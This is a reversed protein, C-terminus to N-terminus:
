TMEEICCSVRASAAEEGPWTRRTPTWRFNVTCREAQRDAPTSEMGNTTSDKLLHHESAMEVMREMPCAMPWLSLEVSDNSLYSWVGTRSGLSRRTAPCHWNNSEDGVLGGGERSLKIQIQQLSPTAPTCIIVIIIIIIIIIVTCSGFCFLCFLLFLVIITM